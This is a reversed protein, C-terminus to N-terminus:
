IVFSKRADCKDLLKHKGLFDEDTSSDGEKRNAEALLYAYADTIVKFDKESEKKEGDAIYKGSRQAESLLRYQEEIEEVTANEPVGLIQHPNNM